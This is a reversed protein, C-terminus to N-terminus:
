IYNEPWDNQFLVVDGKELHASLYGQAAEMSDVVVVGGDFNEQALGSQIDETASTRVLVVLDAANALARGIEKHVSSARDGMEVLGPTVYIKRRNHFKKLTEIAAHAGDPNGNYSDDIVTVGMNGRRVELRHPAPKLKSIGSRTEEPSIGISEGVLLAAIINGIIYDALFPVKFTGLRESGKMLEFSIGSGDTHFTKEVTRYPSHKNNKASYYVVEQSGAIFEDKHKMVRDDDANLIITADSAAHEVIEFKAAITNKLSGFRQLHAENIGTLISIQPQAIECLTRIDGRTYAGMEVVFVDTDETLDQLITRAIGLPTNKNEATKLVNCQERLLKSVVEKMTTKGYSGTIGVVNVDTRKMKQVARWIIFRKAIRDFPRILITAVGAFVFFLYSLAIFLIVVMVGTAFMNSFLLLSVEWAVFVQLLFAIVTVLYLKMTWTVDVRASNRSVYRRMVARFFRKLEYNELQLLKIHHIILNYPLFRKM